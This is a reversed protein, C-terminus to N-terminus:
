VVHPLAVDHDPPVSLGGVVRAPAVLGEHQHPAEDQAHQRGGRDPPGVPAAVEALLDGGEHRHDQDEEQREECIPVGDVDQNQGHARRVVAHVVQRPAVGAVLGDHLLVADRPPVPVRDVDQFVPKAGVERAVLGVVVDTTPGLPGRRLAEELKALLEPDERVEVEGPVPPGDRGGGGGGLLGRGLGLLRPGRLGKAGREVAADKALPSRSPSPSSHESNGTRRHLAREPRDLQLAAGM